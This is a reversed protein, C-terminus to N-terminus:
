PVFVFENANLMARAFQVMGEAAIFEEAATGEAESPARGFCLRYARDVQASSSQGADETLRKAFLEAQQLVFGSNLLNLAQLPTTSRGRKPVVQSADPCDFVGFTSDKEQRVKTMYIMRRWDEPGYSKKAHYHRVNEAEVEFASFGPGGGGRDLVGSVALMSDRIAEAELRRPPFRWMWRSAADVKLAEVRPRSDQRWTGSNLILRHIHKLSWGHDMLEAALWDLLHPHTPKAGNAGFDSPTDVIGEGFHFQWLRNVMVRATLPNKRSAFWDAIALRREREPSERKLRLDTLAAIAAPSVEERLQDPEGRHLRHTPGPQAFKGIYASGTSTLRDREARAANLEELWRQGRKAVDPPHGTFEYRASGTRAGGPPRRDASTAVLEWRGLELATEIRYVIALRDTYKGQRDRGWEIRDIVTPRPLEIQVWGTVDKAIWSKANGYKGDNIHALRHLAHVFDGSSTARAGLSALAVNTGNSFIELEDLCPQSRSSEEITFRVLRAERAPFTEVNRKPDVLPRLAFMGAGRAGEAVPQFVVTSVTVATGAEGGILVLADDRGLEHVGADHWGSWIPKRSPEGSGDARIQQNVKAIENLGKGTRLAFRADTSHSGYGGGWSILVRHRGAVRPHFRAIEVGPRNRWWHYSGGVDSSLGDTLVVKGNPAFLHEADAERLVISASSTSPAFRALEERLAAIREDIVAIKREAGLSLPLKREAHQVGAFVAQLSYYDTQTVPDFMHDHCRACGLTLGLFATGTTNIIDDLENMRQMLRLKPDKGKVLDYPGAVLFGTGLDAGVADGAIQERVFEDYPKDANFADIVWDRYRWANPRERNTEFGHTEGFRALDLWHTAWREGYRPSSLVAEVVREWADPRADEVFKTVREPAPPLGHMVLFLRRILKRRGAEPSMALGKERLRNQVLQDIANAHSVPPRMVPQLSWHALKTEVERESVVASTRLFAACTIVLCGWWRLDAYNM